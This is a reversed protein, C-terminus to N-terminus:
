FDPCVAKVVAADDLEGLGAAVAAEFRRLAADGLPTAVGAAAAMQVALGVDKTLITTRCRTRLRRWGARRPPRNPPSRDARGM